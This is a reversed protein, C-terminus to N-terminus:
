PGHPHERGAPPRQPQSRRGGGFGGGFFSGFIDGLDGFDFGGAGYAAASAAPASTPTWARMASSTTGPRRTRTPSSRM